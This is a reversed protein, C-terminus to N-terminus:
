VASERQPPELTYGCDVINQAFILFIDFMKKEHIVVHHDNIRTDPPVPFREYIPFAGMHTVCYVTIICWACPFSFM